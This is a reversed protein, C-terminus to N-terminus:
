GAVPSPHDARLLDHVADLLSYSDTVQLFPAGAAQAAEGDRDDDGIFTVRSLDLHFDRQAQFLMGPRPKRCDCGDDWNHPCFYIADIRGGAAETEAMMRAHIDDLTAPDLAGRALGPQNTILIVRYGARNLAALADLAGPLWRWDTWSCVYRAQPMRVNLTGDRDLLVTPVRALFAETLPLREHSGVSYYRHDTQFAALQRREVLVPYVTKEFSPNGDEPILDIVERRLIFFGIDVGALGPAARSKDYVALLGDSDVRLNDRTYGDRNRYVTVMAAVDHDLYRRWMTEFPMPWYNDCYLLVFVDDLRDRVRRLRTGTEDDVPSVAYDIAIGFRSGDGFHDMVKDPLYGLLFLIRTFGQRTLMEVLYDAFPRGHFPIMPKPTHDTLPRLRTGQGGALIVAQRPREVGTSM